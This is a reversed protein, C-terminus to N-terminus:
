ATAPFMHAALLPSKPATVMLPAVVMVSRFAVSVPTAAFTSTAPLPLQINRILFKGCRIYYWDDDYPSLEKWCATKALDVWQPLPVKGSRKLYRAYAAVFDAANVDKVTVATKAVHTSM